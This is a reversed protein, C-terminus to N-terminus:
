EAAREVASTRLPPPPVRRQARPIPQQSNPTAADLSAPGGASRQSIARAQGTLERPDAGSQSITIKGQWLRQARRIEPCAATRSPAREPAFSFAASRARSTFLLGPPSRPAVRAPPSSSFAASRARSTFLLGPSPRRATRAPLLPIPVSRSRPQARPSFFSHSPALARSRARSHLSRSCSSIRSKYLRLKRTRAGIM